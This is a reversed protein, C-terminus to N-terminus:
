DSSFRYKESGVVFAAGVSQFLLRYPQEVEQRGPMALLRRLTLIKPPEILSYDDLDVARWNNDLLIESYIILDDFTYVDKTKDDTKLAVVVRSPINLARTLAIFLYLTDQELHGQESLVGSVAIDDIARSETVLMEAETSDAEPMSSPLRKNKALWGLINDLSEEDKEGVLKAALEQVQPHRLDLLPDNALYLHRDEPQDEAQDAEAAATTEALRLDIAIRIDLDDGPMLPEFQFYAEQNGALDPLVQIFAPSPSSINKVLQRTTQKAPLVFRLEARDLQRHTKNQIKFAIDIHSKVPYMGDPIAPESYDHVPDSSVSWIFYGLLAALAFIIFVKSGTSV